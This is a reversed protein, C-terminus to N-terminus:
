TFFTITTLDQLQCYTCVQPAATIMHVRYPEYSLLQMPNACIELMCCSDRATKLGDYSLM